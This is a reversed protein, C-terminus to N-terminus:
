FPKNNSQGAIDQGNKRWQFLLPATGTAHVSFKATQGAKVTTDSPQITIAPPLKVTLTASDSTVSGGGNSVVV